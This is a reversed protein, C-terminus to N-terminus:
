WLAEQHKALDGWAGVWTEGLIQRAPIRHHHRPLPLTGRAVRDLWEIFPAFRTALHIVCTPWIFIVPQV